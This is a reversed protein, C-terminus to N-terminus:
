NLFVIVLCVQSPKASLGDRGGLFIYVVGLGEYPAGVAVDSYGDHNLDGLSTMSSGFRSEGPAGALTQSLGNLQQDTFTKIIIKKPHM